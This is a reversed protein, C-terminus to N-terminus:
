MRSLTKVADSECICRCYEKIYMRLATYNETKGFEKIFSMEGVGSGQNCTTCQETLSLYYANKAPDFYASSEKACGLLSLRRCVAILWDLKDFRYIETRGKRREGFSIQRNEKSSDSAGLKTIYMECGGGKSPYLQVFVKDSAADFGTKHKAEDLISWFARRTETNDYDINECKLDYQAMDESTMMIKLKSSNILILELLFM